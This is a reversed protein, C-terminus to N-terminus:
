MRIVNSLNIKNEIIPERRMRRQQWRVVQQRGWHRLQGLWSGLPRRRQLLENQRWPVEMPLM